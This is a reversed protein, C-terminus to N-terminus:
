VVKIEKKPLLKTEEMKPISLKLIGDNYKADIKDTNVSQPLTFSRSFSNYSFEKRTFNDNEENKEKEKEASITLVNEDLDIKFDKKAFGPSAFEINFENKNEKINVAPLTHKLKKELWKNDFFDDNAFFNDMGFPILNGNTKILTM